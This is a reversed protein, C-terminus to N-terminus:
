RDSVRQYVRSDRPLGENSYREILSKKRAETIGNPMLFCRKGITRVEIGHIEELADFVESYMMDHPDIDNIIYIGGNQAMEMAWQRARNFVRHMEM